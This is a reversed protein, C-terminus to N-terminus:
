TTAIEIREHDYRHGRRAREAYLDQMAATNGRGLWNQNTEGFHTLQIPLRVRRQRPWRRQFTSDYNGAHRWFQDFPPSTVNPNGVHFLHFFGAIDPDPVPQGNELHRSAGYLNKPDLEAAEVVDRWDRAPLVDADFCLVWDHPQLLEFAENLARAKNFAAGDRWFVETAHVRVGLDHCLKITEGDRPATVVMLEDLRDLWRPLTKQLLDSYDVCVVLGAIHKM